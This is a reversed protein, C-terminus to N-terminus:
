WQGFVNTGKPLALCEGSGGQALRNFLWHRNGDPAPVILWHYWGEARPNASRFSWAQGNSKNIAIFQDTATRTQLLVWNKLFVEDSM